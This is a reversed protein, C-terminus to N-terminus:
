KEKKDLIEKRLEEIRLKDADLAKNLVSFLIKGSAEYLGIMYWRCQMFFAAIKDANIESLKANSTEKPINEIKKNFEIVHDAASKSVQSALNYCNYLYKITM